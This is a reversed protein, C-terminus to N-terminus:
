QTGPGLGDLADWYGPFTKAVCGPDGIEIGPVRLGLLAFSMAMRHDDHTAIRAAHPTGPHVVFGDAMERAEVGARALEGVVAAIRDTEHYRIFGVGTVETPRDAFAALVAVTQAMDPMDTLDLTGPSRLEGTGTVITTTATRDVRAGMASLVDAFGADGQGSGAGLGEVTVRGGVLAAAALFYSATSADPEVAYATARYRAPPVVLPGERADGDVGVGFAGMVAVTLAVYPRSVLPTTLALRVGGRAYPAALLLGSLFQSSTDGAVALDGGALGGPAVVTVPLHGDEGEPRVEAGLARIGDLVPGMPRARLPPAGDVRYDGAGLAVVPLLFRSTTGSQRVDLALPGPRLRGGTGTVTLRATAPDEDIAAGLTVLATRMAETDDAVLAGDLTSTGDALAACVLARNTLSKSGPVAVSADLPGALPRVARVEVPSM